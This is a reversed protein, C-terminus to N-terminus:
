VPADCRRVSSGCYRGDVLRRVTETVIVACNRPSYDAALKRAARGKEALAERPAEAIEKLLGTLGAEDWPSFRWGTEPRALDSACGCQTSVLVPLGSLMAENVVLGWAERLSPLIFADASRYIAPLEAQPFKGRFRVLPSIGLAKALGRLEDELPGYGVLDLVMRPNEPDQQVGRFARLLCALNKEPSFRGVYLLVKYRPKPSEAGGDTLFRETDAVARKIFVRDPAMGLKRVYELNSEGYVHALDCRSVFVKKPLERWARRPYDFENSEAWLITGAKHRRAWLWATWAAVDYYGSIIVARPRLECLTRWVFRATHIAPAGEYPGDWGLRYHYEGNKPLPREIRNGSSAGTFLVEFDLGQKALECFLLHKYHIPHNHIIAVCGQRQQSCVSM